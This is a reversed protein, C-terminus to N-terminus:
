ILPLGFHEFLRNLYIERTFWGEYTENVEGRVRFAYQYVHYEVNVSTLQTGDELIATANEAVLQGSNMFGARCSAAIKWMKTADHYHICIESTIPIADNGPCDQSGEIKSVFPEVQPISTILPGGNQSRSNNIGVSLRALHGPSPHISAIEAADFLESIEPSSILIEEFWFSDDMCGVGSLLEEKAEDLDEPFEEDGKEEDWRDKLYQRYIDEAQTHSTSGAARLTEPSDNIAVIARITISM